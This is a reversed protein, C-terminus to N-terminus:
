PTSAGGDALCSGPLESGLAVDSEDLKLPRGYVSWGRQEATKGGWIGFREPAEEAHTICEVAVPCRACIQRAQAAPGRGTPFFLEADEDACAGRWRWEM